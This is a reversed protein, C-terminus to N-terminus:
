CRAQFCLCLTLPRSVLLLDALWSSITACANPLVTLPLSYEDQWYALPGGPFNRYDILGLQLTNLSTFIFLTGLAFMALVYLGMALSRDKGNRRRAKKSALLSCCQLFMTFM